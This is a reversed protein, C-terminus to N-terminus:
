EETPVPENAWTGYPDQIFYREWMGNSRRFGARAYFPESRETPWTM